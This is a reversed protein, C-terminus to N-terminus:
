SALDPHSLLRSLTRCLDDIEFPKAVYANMGAELFRERDGKMAHATLAVIPIDRNKEGIEGSRIRRAAEMGDLEPMQIDM